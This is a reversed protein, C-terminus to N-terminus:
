CVPFSTRSCRQSRRRRTDGPVALSSCSRGNHMSRRLRRSRPSLSRACSARSCTRLPTRYSNRQVYVDTRARRARPRQWMGLTVIARKRVAPRPHSLLPTLVSLPQPKIDPSSVHVPFRTILISLISLTEILTEPPTNPQPVILSSFLSPSVISVNSLQVLLKPTLKACAKSALKADVPLESTITKLAACARDARSRADRAARVSALM